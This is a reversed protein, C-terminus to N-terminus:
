RWPVMRSSKRLEQRPRGSAADGGESGSAAQLMRPAGGALLIPQYRAPDLGEDPIHGLADVLRRGAPTLTTGSTWVPQDGRAAYFAQVAAWIARGGATACLPQPSGSADLWARVAAPRDSNLRAASSDPLQAFASAAAFAVAAVRLAAFISSAMAGLLREDPRRSITLRGSSGSIFGVQGPM